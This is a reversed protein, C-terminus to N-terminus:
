EGQLKEEIKGSEIARIQIVELEKANGNRVETPNLLSKDKHFRVTNNRLTQDGM